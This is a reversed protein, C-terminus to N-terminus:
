YELALSVLTLNSPIEVRSYEKKLSSVSVSKLGLDDTLQGGPWLPPLTLSLEKLPPTPPFTDAQVLRVSAAVNLLVLRVTLMLALVDGLLECPLDDFSSM